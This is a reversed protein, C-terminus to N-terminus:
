DIVAICDIEVAVDLPLRAVQVTARAPPRFRFFEGYAANMEAFDNMDKLFVTTKVVNDLSGGAASVIAQLNMLARRTQARISKNEILAGTSPDLPIQGSVFVMNGTRIAQSYQGAAAPGLTTAIVKKDM